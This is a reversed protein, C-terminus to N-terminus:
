EARQQMGGVMWYVNYFMM